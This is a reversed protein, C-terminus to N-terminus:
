GKTTDKLTKGVWDRLGFIHASIVLCGRASFGEFRCISHWWQLHACAWLETPVDQCLSFSLPGREGGSNRELWCSGRKRRCNVTIETKLLRRKEVVVM